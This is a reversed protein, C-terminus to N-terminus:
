LIDGGHFKGGERFYLSFTAKKQTCFEETEGVVLASRVDGGQLHKEVTAEQEVGKTM